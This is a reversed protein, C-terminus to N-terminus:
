FTYDTPEIQWTTIVPKTATTPTVTPWNGSAWSTHTIVEDAITLGIDDELVSVDDDPTIWRIVQVDTAGFVIAAESQAGSTIPEGDFLDVSSLQQNNPTQVVSTYAYSGDAVNKAQVAYDQNPGQGAYYVTGAQAIGNGVITFQSINTVNTASMTGTGGVVSVTLTFTVGAVNATATVVNNLVTWTRAVFQSQASAACAAHLAAATADADAGGGATETQGSITIRYTSAADNVLVTATSTQKKSTKVWATTLDSSNVGINIASGVTRNAQFVIIGESVVCIGGFGSFSGPSFVYSKAAAVSFDAALKIVYFRDNNLVGRAVIFTNVGDDCISFSTLTNAHAYTHVGLVTGDFASILIGTGTTTGADTVIWLLSSGVLLLQSSASTSSYVLKTVSNTTKPVILRQGASLSCHIDNGIVTLYTASNFSQEIEILRVITLMDESVTLIGVYSLSDAKQFGVGIYINTGDNAIASSVSPNNNFADGIHSQIGKGGTEREGLLSQAFADM